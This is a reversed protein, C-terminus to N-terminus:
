IFISYMEEEKHMIIGSRSNIIEFIKNIRLDLSRSFDEGKSHPNSGILDARMGNEVRNKRRATIKITNSM